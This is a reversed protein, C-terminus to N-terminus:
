NDRVRIDGEDIPHFQGQAGCVEQGAPAVVYAFTDPQDISRNDGVIFTMEEFTGEDLGEKYTIKGILTAENAAVFLCHVDAEVYFGSTRLAMSGTPNQGQPGSRAKFRFESPAVATETGHGQASDGPAAQAPGVAVSLAAAVVVFCIFRRM